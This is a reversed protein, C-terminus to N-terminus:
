VVNLFHSGVGSLRDWVSGRMGGGRCRFLFLFGLFFLFLCGSCSCYVFVNGLRESQSIFLGDTILRPRLEEAHIVVQGRISQMFPQFFEAALELVFAVVVLGDTVEALM